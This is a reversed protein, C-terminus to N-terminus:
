RERFHLSRFRGQQRGQVQLRSIAQACRPDGHSSAVKRAGGRPRSRFGMAGQRDPQHALRRHHRTTGRVCHSDHFPPGPRDGLVLRVGIQHFRPIAARKRSACGRLAQRGHCGDARRRIRLIAIRDRVAHAVVRIYKVSGDPMLLRHEYDFDKGDGSARDLTRQVLARDEPHVRELAMELTVSPASDYGFIRFSEESWFIEGSSTNWGFSGTQSLRQAEALYMQSSRLAGDSESQIKAAVLLDDRSRRLSKVARRQTSSLFTVFLAAVSLLFLRPLEQLGLSFLNHKATFSNAPPVVYYHFALLALVIALLGPGFGGFWAAFMVASIMSSAIPETHLFVTLVQAAVAAVAVSLMAVAYRSVASQKSLWPPPSSKSM